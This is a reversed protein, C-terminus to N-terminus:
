PIYRVISPGLATAVPLPLRRWLRPGWSFAGDDPSPTAAEAGGVGGSVPLLPNPTIIRKGVGAEFGAHLTAAAFLCTGVVFATLISRM